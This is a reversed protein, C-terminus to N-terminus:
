LLAEYKAVSKFHTTRWQDISMIVPKLTELRERLQEVFDEEDEEEGLEKRIAKMQQRLFFERQNKNMEGKVESSIRQSVRLRCWASRM